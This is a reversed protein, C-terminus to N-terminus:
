RPPWPKSHFIHITPTGGPIHCCSETLHVRFIVLFVIVKADVPVDDWNTYPIKFPEVDEWKIDTFLASILSIDKYKNTGLTSDFIWVGDKKIIKYPYAFLAGDKDRAIYKYGKEILYELIYNRFEYLNDTMKPNDAQKM